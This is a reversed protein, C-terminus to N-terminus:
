AAQQAGRPPACRSCRTLKPWGQRGGWMQWAVGALSNLVCNRCIRRKGTSATM